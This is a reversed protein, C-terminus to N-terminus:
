MPVCYVIQWRILDIWFLRFRMSRAIWLINKLNFWFIIFVWQCQISTLSKPESKSRFANSRIWESVIPRDVSSRCFPRRETITKVHCSVSINRQQTHILVVVAWIYTIRIYTFPTPVLYQASTNTHLVDDYMSFKVMWMNSHRRRRLRRQRHSRRCCLWLVVRVYYLVFFFRFLPFFLFQVLLVDFVVVNLSHTTALLLMIIQEKKKKMFLIIIILVFRVNAYKWIRTFNIHAFAVDLVAVVSLIFIFNFWIQTRLCFLTLHFRTVASIPFFFFIGDCSVVLSLFFYVTKLNSQPIQHLQHQSQTGHTRVCM